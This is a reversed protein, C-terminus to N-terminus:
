TITQSSKSRSRLIVSSYFTFTWHWMQKIYPFYHLTQDIQLFVFLLLKINQHTWIHSEFHIWNVQSFKPSRTKLNQYIENLEMNNETIQNPFFGVSKRKTTKCCWFLLKGFSIMAITVNNKWHWWRNKTSKSRMILKKVFPKM